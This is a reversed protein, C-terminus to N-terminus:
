TQELPVPWPTRILMPIREESDPEFAQPLPPQPLEIAGVSDVWDFRPRLSVYSPLDPFPISTPTAPVVQEPSPLSPEVPEPLAPMLTALPFSTEATSPPPPMAAESPVEPLFSTPPEPPPMEVLSTSPFTPEAPELPPPMLKTVPVELETRESLSPTIAGISPEHKVPLETPSQPGHVLDAQHQLSQVRRVTASRTVLYSRIGPRNGDNESITGARRREGVNNPQPNPAAKLPHFHPIDIANVVREACSANAWSVTLATFVWFKHM